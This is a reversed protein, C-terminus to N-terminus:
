REEDDAVKGKEGDISTELRTLALECYGFGGRVEGGESYASHVIRGACL